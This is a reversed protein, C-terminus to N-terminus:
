VRLAEDAGAECQQAPRDKGSALDASDSHPLSNSTESSGAIARSDEVM